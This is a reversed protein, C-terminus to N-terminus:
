DAKSVQYTIVVKYIACESDCDKSTPEFMIFYDTVSVTTKSLGIMTIKQILSIQGSSTVSAIFNPATGSVYSLLTCTVDRTLSNDLVSCEVTKITAGVPINLSATLPNSATSTSAIYKGIGSFNKSKVTVESPADFSISSIVKLMTKPSSYSYDDSIIEAVIITTSTDIDEGLITNDEIDNTEVCGTDEPTLTDCSLNGLLLNGVHLNNLIGILEGFLTLNGQLDADGTIVVDGDLTITILASAAGVSIAGLFIFLVLYPTKTLQNKWDM